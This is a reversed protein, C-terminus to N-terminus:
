IANLKLYCESVIRVGGKGGFSKQGRPKFLIKLSNKFYSHGKMIKFYNYFPVTM